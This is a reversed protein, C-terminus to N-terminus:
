SLIVIESRNSAVHLLQFQSGFVVTVGMMHHNERKNTDAELAQDRNLKKLERPDDVGKQIAQRLAEAAAYVGVRDIRFACEQTSVSNLTVLM